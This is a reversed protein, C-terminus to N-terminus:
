TLALASAGAVVIATSWAVAAAALKVDLGYVHAVVLCNIGCPMAAQLLYTSPLPLLIADALVMVAPALVLRIAVAAVVPRTLPPPFTFTGDEAEHRLHIGLVFFGIPALGLAAARGVDVVADPVASDPVVLAAVLALLPPNRVVYSRARARFGEGARTGFAAGIGFGFLLVAPTSVLADYAIASGLEGTGLVAASLPLGLYGTNAVVAACLVVGLAPRDLHLVRRGVVWAGLAAVALALYGLALGVGVSADLELRNVGCFTIFPFLSFLLVELARGTAAEARAGWRRETAVGAWASTVIALVVWAV